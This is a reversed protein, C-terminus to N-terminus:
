EELLECRVSALAREFAAIVDPLQRAVYSGNVNHEACHLSVTFTDFEGEQQEQMYQLTVLGYELMMDDNRVMAALGEPLGGEPADQADETDEEEEDLDTRMLGATLSDAIKYSSCSTVPFKRDQIFQLQGKRLITTTGM